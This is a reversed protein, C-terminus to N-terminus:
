LMIPTYRHLVTAQGRVCEKSQSRTSIENLGLLLSTANRTSPVSNLGLEPRELLIM